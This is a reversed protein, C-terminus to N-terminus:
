SDGRDHGRGICIFCWRKGDHEEGDQEDRADCGCCVCREEATAHVRPELCGAFDDITLAEGRAQKEDMRRQKALAADSYWDGSM